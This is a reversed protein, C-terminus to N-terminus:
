QPELAFLGSRLIGRRRKRYDIDGLLCAHSRVVDYGRQFGKSEQNSIRDCACISQTEVVVVHLLVDLLVLLLGCYLNIRLAQAPSRVDHTPRRIKERHAFLRILRKLRDSRSIFGVLIALFRLLLYPL